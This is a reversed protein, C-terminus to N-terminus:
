LMCYNMAHLWINASERFGRVDTHRKKIDVDDLVVFSFTCTNNRITLKKFFCTQLLHEADSRRVAGANMAAPHPSANQAQPFMRITESADSCDFLM